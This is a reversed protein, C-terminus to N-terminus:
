DMLTNSHEDTVAEGAWVMPEIVRDTIRDAGNDYAILSNVKIFARLRTHLTLTENRLSATVM